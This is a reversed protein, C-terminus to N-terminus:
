VIRKILIIKIIDSVNECTDSISTLMYVFDRYLIKEFDSLDSSFIKYIMNDEIQDVESEYINILKVLPKVIEVSNKEFLKEISDSVLKILEANLKMVKKCEKDLLKPYSVNHLLFFKSIDEYIDAVNDVEELLSFIDERFEPLLSDTYLHKEISHLKDDAISEVTGVEKILNSEKDLLSDHNEFLLKEFLNDISIIVKTFEKVDEKFKENKKFLFM